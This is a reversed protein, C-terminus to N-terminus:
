FFISRNEPFDLLEELLNWSFSFMNRSGSDLDLDYRVSRIEPLLFSVFVKETQGIICAASRESLSSSNM